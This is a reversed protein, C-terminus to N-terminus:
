LASEARSPSRRRVSPAPRSCTRGLPRSPRQFLDPLHLLICINDLIVINKKEGKKGFKELTCHFNESGVVKEVEFQSISNNM